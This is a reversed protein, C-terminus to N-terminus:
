TSCEILYPWPLKFYFIRLSVLVQSLKSNWFVTFGAKFPVECSRYIVFWQRYIVFEYSHICVVSLHLFNGNSNNNLSYYGWTTLIWLRLWQLEGQDFILHFKIRRIFRQNSGKVLLRRNRISHLCTEFLSSFLNKDKPFFSSWFTEWRSNDRYFLQTTIIKNKYIIM